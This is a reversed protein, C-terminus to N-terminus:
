SNGKRRVRELRKVFAAHGRSLLGEHLIAKARKGEFALFAAAHLWLGPYIKSAFVGNRNARLEQNTAFDFWRIEQEEICVVVYEQVGAQQYDARKQNLDISVSSYAVEALLEPPGEVYGGANIFSLGGSEATIRLTLDPQPESQAGLIDSVEVSAEVGPTEDEYIDFLAGLLKHYRGHLYRAPSAMYVIGGVLEFKEPGPHAWYRRHFESQNLQDGNHLPPVGPKVEINM